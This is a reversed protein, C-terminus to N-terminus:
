RIRACMACLRECTFVGLVDLGAVGPGAVGPVGGTPANQAPAFASMLRVGLENDIDDVVKIGIYYCM